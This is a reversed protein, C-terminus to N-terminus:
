PGFLVAGLLFLATFLLARTVVQSIRENMIKM